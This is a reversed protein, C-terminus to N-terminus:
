ENEGTLEAQGIEHRARGQIGRLAERFAEASMEAIDAAQDIDFGSDAYAEVIRRDDESLAESVWRLAASRDERALAQMEPSPAARDATRDLLSCNLKGGSGVRREDLRWPTRAYTPSPKATKAQKWWKVRRRRSIEDRNRWYSCRAWHRVREPNRAAYDRKRGRYRGFYKIRYGRIMEPRAHYWARRRARVREGNAIRYEKQYTRSAELDRNYRATRAAKICEKCRGTRGDKEWGNRYFGIEADKVSGCRRCRKMGEPIPPLSPKDERPASLGERSRAAHRRRRMDSARCANCQRRWYPRGEIIRELKFAAGDAKGRGCRTCRLDDCSTPMASERRMLGIVPQAASGSDERAEACIRSSIPVKQSATATEDTWKAKEPEEQDTKMKGNLM